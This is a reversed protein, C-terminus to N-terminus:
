LNKKPIQQQPEVAAPSIQLSSVAKLAIIFVFILLGSVMLCMFLAPSFFQYNQFLSEYEVKDNSNGGSLVHVDNESNTSGVLNDGDSFTSMIALLFNPSPLHGIVQKLVLDVDSAQAVENDPFNFYFVRPQTDEYLSFKYENADGIDIDQIVAGCEDQLHSRVSDMLIHERVPDSIVVNPRLLSSTSKDVAETLYPMDHKNFSGASAKPYKIFIYSDYSCQSVSEGILKALSTNSPDALEETLATKITMDQTNSVLAFPSSDGLANASAALLVLASSLLNLPQIM